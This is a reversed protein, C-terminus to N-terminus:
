YQSQRRQQSSLLCLKAPFTYEEQKNITGKRITKKLNEAIKQIVRVIANQQFKNIQKTDNEILPYDIRCDINM